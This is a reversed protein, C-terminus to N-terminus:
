RGVVEFQITCDGIKLAGGSPLVVEENSILREGEPTELITGNVSHDRYRFAGRLWKFHGHRRSIFNSEIRLQCESSRGLEYIGSHAFPIVFSEEKYRLRLSNPLLETSPLDTPQDTPNLARAAADILKERYLHDLLEHRLLAQRSGITMRLGVPLVLPELHICILPKDEDVALTLEQTCYKSAISDRSMFCIMAASDAIRHALQDRWIAGGPIDTDRWVAISAAELVALDKMVVASDSRAYSVFLYRSSTVPRHPMDSM